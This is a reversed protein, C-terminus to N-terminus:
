KGKYPNEVKTYGANKMKIETVVQQPHDLIFNKVIDKWWTTDYPHNIIDRSTELLLKVAPPEKDISPLTVEAYRLEETKGTHANKINQKQEPTFAPALFSIAEYIPAMKITYPDTIPNYDYEARKSEYKRDVIKHLNVAQNMLRTYLNLRANYDFLDLTSLEDAGKSFESGITDLERAKSKQSHGEMRCYLRVLKLKAVTEKRVKEPDYQQGPMHGTTMIAQAEKQLGQMNLMEGLESFSGLMGKSKNQGPGWAEVIKDRIL